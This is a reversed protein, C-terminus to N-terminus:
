PNKTPQADRGLNDGHRTGQVTALSKIQDAGVLLKTVTLAYGRGSQELKGFAVVEDKPKPLQGRLSEPLAAVVSLKACGDACGAEGLDSITFMGKAASVLDVGGHLAIEKGKMSEMHGVLDGFEVVSSNEQAFAVSTALVSCLALIKLKM